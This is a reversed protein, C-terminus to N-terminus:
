NLKFITGIRQFIHGGPPLTNKWNHSYYCRTLWRSTENITWDENLNTLVNRRIISPALCNKDQQISSTPECHLLHHYHLITVVSLISSVSRDSRRPAPKPIERGDHDEVRERVDNVQVSEREETSPELVEDVNETLVPSEEVNVGDQDESEVGVHEVNEFTSDDQIVTNPCETHGNNEEGDLKEKVSVNEKYEDPVPEKQGASDNIRIIQVEDVMGPPIRRHRLKFPTDNTLDIRHTTESCESVEWLNQTSCLRTQASLKFIDLRDVNIVPDPLRLVSKPFWAGKTYPRYQNKM